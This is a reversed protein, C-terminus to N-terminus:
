CRPNPHSEGSSSLILSCLLVCADAEVLTEAVSIVDLRVERELKGNDAALSGCAGFVDQPDQLISVDVVLLVAARCHTVEQGRRATGHGMGMWGGLWISATVTLM